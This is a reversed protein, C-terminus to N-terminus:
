PSPLRFRQPAAARDAAATAAVTSQGIALGPARRAEREVATAPLVLVMGLAGVALLVAIVLPMGRASSTNRPM